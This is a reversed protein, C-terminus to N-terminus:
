AQAFFPKLVTAAQMMAPSNRTSDGADLVGRRAVRPDCLIEPALSKVSKLFEVCKREQDLAPDALFGRVHHIVDWGLFERLLALHLSDAPANRRETAYQKERFLSVPDAVFFDIAEGNLGTVRGRRCTAKATDADLWFCIQAFGLRIGDIAIYSRGAEDTVVRRPMLAEAEHGMLGTFDLDKSLWLSEEEPSFSPVSFEPDDVRNLLARYFWCAGGGILVTRRLFDGHERSLTGLCARLRDYDVRLQGDDTSM